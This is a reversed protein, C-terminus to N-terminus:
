PLTQSFNSEAPVLLALFNNKARTFVHELLPTRTHNCSSEFTSDIASTAIASLEFCGSPNSRFSAWSRASESIAPDRRTRSVPFTTPPRNWTSKTAHLAGNIAHLAGKTAQLAGNVAHLAGKLSYRSPRQVRLPPRSLVTKGAPSM